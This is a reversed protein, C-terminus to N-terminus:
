KKTAPEGASTSAKAVPKETTATVTCTASIHKLKTATFTRLKAGKENQWTGTLMVKHGIHASLDQDSQVAIGKKYRANTLVFGQGAPDKALCGTLQSTKGAAAAKGAGTQKESAATTKESKTSKTTTTTTTGSGTGQAFGTFTCALVVALLILLRQM